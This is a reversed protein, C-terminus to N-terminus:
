ALRLLIKGQRAGKEAAQVAEGVREMPFIEQVPTTLVGARLLAIIERFLRLMSLAGQGKVWDSLWFGEISKQGGILVRSPLPIPDGSLTGFLLLKGGPALAKAAELGMTGGVCDLAYPVGEGTLARVRSLYNEDPLAIVEDAGLKKLEAIQEPRRVLNITRFGLHKGLRIVMQGLASGAATQLLWGGRPVQLVRQTMILATAPNVFFSAVQEDPVDDPVPVVNRASLVVSQQWSGGAGHLVAVRRGPKLGRFKALLGGGVADIVGYGEYGPVAPLTPLRGYEGRITMLDSPNIPALKMRVRVEGRAPQLEPVEASALVEAPNGFRDFRIAKM